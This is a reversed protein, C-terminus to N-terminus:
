NTHGAHMIGHEANSHEARERAEAGRDAVQAANLKNAQYWSPPDANLAGIIKPLTNRLSHQPEWGLLKRARSIDIAYHDDAIDVMWPRIFSDEGLVDHQVWAGAKALTKPIERTEWTEEHIM